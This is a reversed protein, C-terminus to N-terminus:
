TRLWPWSRLGRAAAAAAAEPGVGGGVAPLGAGVAPLGAGVPPLPLPALARRPTRLEQSASIAALLLRAARRTRLPGWGAWGTLHRASCQEQRRRLRRVALASIQSSPTM